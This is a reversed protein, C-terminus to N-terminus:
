ASKYYRPYAGEWKQGGRKSFNLYLDSEGFRSQIVTNFLKEKEAQSGFVLVFKSPFVKYMTGIGKVGESKLIRFIDSELIQQSSGSCQIHGLLSQERIQASHSEELSKQWVGGARAGESSASDPELNGQPTKDSEGESPLCFNYISNKTKPQRPEDNQSQIDITPEQNKNIKTRKKPPSNSERGTESDTTYFITYEKSTASETEILSTNVTASEM